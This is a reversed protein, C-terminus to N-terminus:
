KVPREATRPGRYPRSLYSLYLEVANDIDQDAMYLVASGDPTIKWTYPDVDGGLVLPASVRRAEKIRDLPAVFLEFVEDTEQDAVYVVQKSNASIAFLL